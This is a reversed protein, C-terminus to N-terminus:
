FALMRKPNEILMNTIQRDSLGRLRFQPVINDLIHAYGWGGYRTLMFKMCIDHALMIRKDYGQDCLEVVTDVLDIDCAEKGCGPWIFDLFM